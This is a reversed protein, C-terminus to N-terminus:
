VPPWLCFTSLRQQAFAVVRRQRSTHLTEVNCASAHRDTISILRPAPILTGGCPAAQAVNQHKQKCLYSKREQCFDQSSLCGFRWLAPRVSLASLRGRATCYSSLEQCAASTRPCTRRPCASPLRGQLSWLAETADWGGEGGGM